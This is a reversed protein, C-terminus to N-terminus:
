STPHTILEVAVTYTAGVALVKDVAADLVVVVTTTGCTVCVGDETSVLRVVDPIEVDVVVKVLVVEMVEVMVRAVHAEPKWDHAEDNPPPQQEFFM